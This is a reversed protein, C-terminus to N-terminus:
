CQNINKGKDRCSVYYELFEIVRKESVPSFSTVDEYNNPSSNMTFMYHNGKKESEVAEIILNLIPVNKTKERQYLVRKSQDDRNFSMKQFGLGILKKVLSNDKNNRSLDILETKEKIVNRKKIPM